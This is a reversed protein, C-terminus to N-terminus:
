KIKICNRGDSKASYMATDAVEVMEQYTSFNPSYLSVGISVTLAHGQFRQSLIIGKREIEQRIREAYSYAGQKDTNRLIFVFEEGGYRGIFDSPRTLTLMIQAVIKLADDGAQHGCTDNFKKFYDIDIFGIAVKSLQEPKLAFTQTLFDTVMRKNLLGTLPDLEARKKELEFRKANALAVGLEHIIPNIQEICNDTIPTKTKHKDAYLLAVLRNLSLVPIILFEEVDFQRLITRNKDNNTNIIIANRERLSNLITSPLEDLKINFAQLSNKDVSEPWTYTTTLSRQKPNIDLMVLREFAFDKQMVALTWPVIESSILSKHPTTLSTISINDTRREAISNRKNHTSLLLTTQVLAARLRNINPFQIGYFERTHQMEQDVHNLLSELDPKEIALYKSTEAHLEPSNNLAISGIGQMWAIYNAFHVIAIDRKYIAFPSNDDPLEHHCYVIASIQEPIDWQQCFTYGMEAHNLGFLDHEGLLTPQEDNKCALIFDSYSVKGHTELVIKGIDHMLGATYILDVDPHKLATAIARSLSAVFLCHQWFFLQDFQQKSKHDILKNYFLQNLALQRVASFGLISVAQKISTIKHALAFAASNVNRLVKATLTPETEILMSLDGVDTNEDHTLRLLKIAVAPIVQLSNVKHKLIADAAQNIALAQHSFDTM